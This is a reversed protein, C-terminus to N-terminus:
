SLEESTTEIEESEVVDVVPDVAPEKVRSRSRKPPNRKVGPKIEILTGPNFVPHEFIRRSVKGVKGTLTNMANVTDSM